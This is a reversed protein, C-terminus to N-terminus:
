AIAEAFRSARQHFLLVPLKNITLDWWGRQNASAYTGVCVCVCVSADNRKNNGQKHKREVAAFIRRRGNERARFLHLAICECLYCFFSSFHADTPVVNSCSSFACAAVVRYLLYIFISQRLFFADLVTELQQLEEKM